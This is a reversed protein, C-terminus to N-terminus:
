TGADKKAYMAADARSLLETVTDRPGVFCYGIAVRLSLATEQYQIESKSIRDLLISIKREVEDGDLNDLLIGFEDGGIRAVFDSQRVHTSLLQGLHSLALDGAGHGHNDNIKKLNNVDLFLLASNDGYRLCRAVRNELSKIFYRRNPLGTLVDHHALREMEQLRAQLGQMQQQLDECKSCENQDGSQRSEDDSM